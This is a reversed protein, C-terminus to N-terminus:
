IRDIWTKNTSKVKQNRFKYAGFVIYQVFASLLVDVLIFALHVAVSEPSTPMFRSTYFKTYKVLVIFLLFATVEVLLAIGNLVLFVLILVAKGSINGVILWFYVILTVVSLVLLWLSELWLGSLLVVLSWFIGFWGTM